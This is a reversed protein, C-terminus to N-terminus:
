FLGVILYYIIPIFMAPLLNGIKIKTLGLMNLGIATIMIGGVLSLERMMDATLLPSIWFALLTIAGQYLLVSVSSFVVGIGLSSAMVVSTIGDLTSKALLIAHNGQLGSELPGLIAMTGVCFLLSAAVFGTSVNGYDKKTRVKSQLWNGLKELGAEIGIWEGLLGGVVLSIIFLIPNAEPEFMQKLAGSIGVFLVAMAVGQTVITKYKEKIGGRLLLGAMAGVFIAVANVITGFM